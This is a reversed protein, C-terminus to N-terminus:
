HNKTDQSRKGGEGPIQLIGNLDNYDEGGREKSVGSLM